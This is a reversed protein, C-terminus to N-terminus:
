QKDRSLISDRKGSNCDRCAAILNEATCEGGKSFPYVHDVEIEVSPAKRGCYQCTFSDRQLIFFRLKASITKRTRKRIPLLHKIRAFVRYRHESQSHRTWVLKEYPDFDIVDAMFMAVDNCIPKGIIKRYRIYCELATCKAEICAHSHDLYEIVDEICDMTGPANLDDNWDRALDGIPLRASLHKKSCLWQIFGTKVPKLDDMSFIWPVESTDHPSFGLTLFAFKVADQSVPFGLDGQLQLKIWGSSRRDIPKESPILKSNIWLLVRRQQNCPLRDWDAKM